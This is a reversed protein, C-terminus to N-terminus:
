RPDRPPPQAASRATTRPALAESARGVTYADGPHRSFAPHNRMARKLAAASVRYGAIRALEDRLQGPTLARGNRALHRAARQEITPHGDPEIVHLARRADQHSEIAAGVCDLAPRSLAGLRRGAHRLRAPELYGARWACYAAGAVVLLAPLPHKIAAKGAAGVGALLAEAALEAVLAADGLAAEFGAMRLLNRGAEVWTAATTTSLGFRTFVSDASLILSPALFEAVAVTDIDDPDGRLSRPLDKDTRLLARIRPNLYDRIPLEVVPVGQMIRGWLMQEAVALPTSTSAAVDPLHEVLEGPVHAGVFTNSRGTNALDTFLERSTASRRAAHCARALLANTDAVAVLAPSSGLMPRATPAHRPLLVALAPDPVM